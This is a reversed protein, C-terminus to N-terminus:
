KVSFPVVLVVGHIHGAERVEGEGRGERGLSGAVDDRKGPLDEWDQVTKAELGAGEQM